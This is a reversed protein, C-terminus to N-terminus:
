FNDNAARWRAMKLRNAERCLQCRCKGHQYMTLPGHKRPGYVEHTTKLQHCTRCLVQCKAIEADRREKSWSWIRHSVKRDRDVHDLQLEDPNGCRVCRKDQFFDNRRRQLWDRQFQRQKEKSAYSV